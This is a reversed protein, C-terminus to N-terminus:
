DLWFLRRDSGQAEVVKDWPFRMILGPGCASDVAQSLRLHGRCNVAVPKRPAARALRGRRGAEDLMRPMQRRSLGTADFPKTM